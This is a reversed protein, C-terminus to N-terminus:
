MQPQSPMPAAKEEDKKMVAAIIMYIASLGVLIYVIDAILGNDFITSVLDIDFAGVLGWNLGGVITLAFAVWGLPNNCKMMISIHSFAFLTSRSETNIIGIGM